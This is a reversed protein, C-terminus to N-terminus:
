SVLMSETDNQDGLQKSETVTYNVHKVTESGRDRRKVQPVVSRICVCGLLGIYTFIRM